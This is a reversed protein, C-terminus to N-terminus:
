TVNERIVVMFVDVVDAVTDRSNKRELRLRFADNPEANNMRLGGSLTTTYSLIDGASLAPVLADLSFPITSICIFYGEGEGNNPVPTSDPDAFRLADRENRVITTPTDTTNTIDSPQFVIPSM